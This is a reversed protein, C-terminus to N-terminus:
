MWLARWLMVPIDWATIRVRSRDSRWGLARLKDLIRLGGQVVLRLEWGARGPIQHVLNLGEQMTLAAWTAQSAILDPTKAHQNLTALDNHPLGHSACDALPLYYRGRPIDVSIDQWFNILQLSTCIADSRALATADTIGYLHLLLRGVPNASRRCYDLLGAQDAYAAATATHHVDQTFASLLDALLAQPLRHHQIAAQLPTFVHPWRASAAPKQDTQLTYCAALDTAFETLDALRQQAPANGEDAIDDATRAFGYIAAIPARLHAPCLWSAVPFNEYHDTLEAARRNPKSNV